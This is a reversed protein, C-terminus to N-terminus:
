KTKYQHTLPITIFTMCYGISPLLMHAFVILWAYYVFNCGPATTKINFAGLLALGLIKSVIQGLIQFGSLLSFMTTEKGKHVYKTALTQFCITKAITAAPYLTADGLLFLLGDTGKSNIRKALVVDSIASAVLTLITVQIALRYTLKGLTEKYAGSVITGSIGTVIASVSLYFALSFHPGNRVCDDDATFWYNTAGEIDVYFMETIFNIFCLLFFGRDHTWYANAALLIPMFSLLCSIAFASWAYHSQISFTMFLMCVVFLISSCLAWESHSTPKLRTKKTILNESIEAQLKVFRRGYPFVQLPNKFLMPLMQLFCMFTMAVGYRSKGSDGLPGVIIAAMTVGIMTCAWAFAPMDSSGGGFSMIASYEGEQLMDIVMIAFSMVSLCATAAQTSTVAFLCIAAIAGIISAVFAQYLKLWGRIPVNDSLAAIIPRMGWPLTQFVLALQYTYGNGGLERIIPFTGFLLAGGALGKVFFFVRVVASVFGPPYASPIM